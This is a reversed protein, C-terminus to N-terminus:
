WLSQETKLDFAHLREPDFRLAVQDGVAPEIDSSVDAVVTENAFLSYILTNGGMPSVVDVQANVVGRQGTPAELTISEPRVGLWVESTGSAAIAHLRMDPVPIRFSDGAFVLGEDDRTVTAKLFNM